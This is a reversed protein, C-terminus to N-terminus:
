TESTAWREIHPLVARKLEPRLLNDLLELANARLERRGSTLGGYARYVDEVPYILALLEVAMWLRRKPEQERESPSAQVERLLAAEVQGADFALDPRRNRMEGLAEVVADGLERQHDALADVLVRAAGQTGIAAFCGPIARRVAEPEEPDDLYDRLTGLVRDGYARLARQAYLVLREDALYPVVLPVFARRGTREVGELAARVVLPSPDRLLDMQLDDYDPDNLTGLLLAAEARVEESAADREQWLDKLAARVAGKGLAGSGAVAAVAATRVRPDADKLFAAVKERAARGGFNCLYRVAEVRVDADDVPLLAEAERIFGGAGAHGLLRLTQARAMPSAHTMTRTLHPILGSKDHVIDLMALTQCVQVEDASNLNEVLMGVTETDLVEAARDQSRAPAESFLNRLVTLYERKVALVAVLWVSVMAISILSLGKVSMGLFATCLLILLGAIGEFLRAGFIEILPRARSRVASPLPLYLIERTAEQLSYRVGGEGLRALTVAWLTPYILIGMSGMVLAAPLLLLAIGVGFRILILRTLLLQFVLGAVNLVAFFKAFFVTKGVKSAFAGAVVTNFQYDMVTQVILSVGSILAILKLHRFERFLAMGGPSAGGPGPRPGAEQTRERGELHRVLPLCALLLASSIYVLNETGLPKVTRLVIGPGVIAGVIGGAGVWGIMRKAERPTFQTGAVLWFQTILVNSFLASWIYFALAIWNGAADFLYRFILLNLMLGLMTVFVRNREPVRVSFWGAAYVAVGTVVAAGIYGANLWSPGLRELLLASRVPKIVTFACMVLFNYLFLLTVVRMEPHSLDPLKWRM